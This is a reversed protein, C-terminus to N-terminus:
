SFSLTTLQIHLEHQKTEPQQYWHLGEHFCIAGFYKMSIIFHSESRCMIRTETAVVSDELKDNVRLTSVIFWTTILNGLMWDMPRTSITMNADHVKEQLHLLPMNM